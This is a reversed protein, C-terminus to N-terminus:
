ILREPSANRQDCHKDGKSTGRAEVGKALFVSVIFEPFQVEFDFHHVLVVATHCIYM